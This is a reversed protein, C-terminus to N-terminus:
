LNIQYTELIESENLKQTPKTVQEVLVSSRNLDGLNYQVIELNNLNDDSGAPQNLTFVDYVNDARTDVVVGWRKNDLCAVIEGNRLNDAEILNNLENEKLSTGVRNHMYEKFHKTFLKFINDKNINDHIDAVITSIREDPRIGGNLTYEKDFAEMNFACKFNEIVKDRYKEKLDSMRDGGRQISGGAQNVVVPAVPVAPAAPVGPVAPVAPVGPVGPVAPVVPAVPAAVPAAKEEVLLKDSYLKYEIDNLSKKSPNGIPYIGYDEDTEQLLRQLSEVTAQDNSVVDTFGSDILVLYGYNPIYFDVGNVKYKWYGRNTDDYKLSKIKVNVELDFNAYSIGYKYMTMLAHYLQFLISKWVEYSHYGTNIMKKALGNDEYQRTAWSIMDQAGAETLALLCKNSPQNIDLGKVLETLDKTSYKQLSVLYERMEAKYLNNIIVKQAKEGKSVIDRNRLRNVKLFDIETDQTIYYAYLVVFNPSEKTKVINDRIDEYLSVERWVEFVNYPLNKFKNILAEGNTMQYVRINIGVNNKACGVNYNVRDVRIPYCSNYILLRKPLLGLPNNKVKDSKSAQIDLIRLYSLLNRVEPSKDTLFNINEGDAQRILISRLYQYIVMRETVTTMTYKLMSEDKSPLIDERFERINSPNAFEINYTNHSLVQTPPPGFQNNISQVTPQIPFTNPLVYNIMKVVDQPPAPKLPRREPPLLEPAVNIQFATKSEPLETKLEYIPVSNDVNTSKKEHSEKMADPNADLYRETKNQKENNSVYPSNKNGKYIPIIREAGGRQKMFDNISRSNGNYHQALLKNVDIQTTPIEAVFTPDVAPLVPEPKPMPPVTELEIKPQNTFPEPFSSNEGLKLNSPEVKQTLKFTSPMVQDLPKPTLIINSVNTAGLKNMIGSSPRSDSGLLGGLNSTEYKPEPLEISIVPDLKKSAKVQLDTGPVNVNPMNPFRSKPPTADIINSNEMGLLSGLGSKDSSKNRPEEKKDGSKKGKLFDLTEEEPTELNLIKEVESKDMAYKSKSKSRKNIKRKKRAGGEQEAEESSEVQKEQKEQKEQFLEDDLLIDNANIGKEHNREVFESIEKPLKFSLLSNLFTDIDYFKNPTRMNEDISDNDIYDKMNSVLFNTIKVEGTSTFPYSKEDVKYNVSKENTKYVMITDVDLKNHRFTPYMSQIVNITNLVQFISDKMNELTPESEIHERLTVLKYFHERITVSLVGAVKIDKYKKLFLLLDKTNVDFNNINVLINRTKKHIVLDSLLYAIIKDVNVSNNPNSEQNKEYQRILIDTPPNTMRKFVYASEHLGEYAINTNFVNNILESLQKGEYMKKIITMDELYNTSIPKSEIPRSTMKQYLYEYLLGSLYDINNLKSM